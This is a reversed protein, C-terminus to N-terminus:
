PSLRKLASSSLMKQLLEQGNRLSMTHLTTHQAPRFATFCTEINEERRGEGGLV